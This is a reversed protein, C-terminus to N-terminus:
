HHRLFRLCSSSLSLVKFVFVLGVVVVVVVVFLLRCVVVALVVAAVLVKCMASPAECKASQMHVTCQASQQLKCDVSRVIVKCKACLM